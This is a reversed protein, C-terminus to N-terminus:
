RFHPGFFFTLYPGVKLQGVKKRARIRLPNTNPDMRTGHKLGPIASIIAIGMM